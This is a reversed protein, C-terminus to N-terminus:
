NVSGAGPAGARGLRGVADTGLVAFLGRERAVKQRRHLGGSLNGLM